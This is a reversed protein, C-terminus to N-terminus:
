LCVNHAGQPGILISAGSKDHVLIAFVRRSTDIDEHANGLASKALVSDCATQM